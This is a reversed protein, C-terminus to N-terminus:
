GVGCEGHAENIASLGAAVLEVLETDPGDASQWNLLENRRHACSMVSEQLRNRFEPRTLGSADRAPEPRRCGRGVLVVADAPALGGKVTPKTM